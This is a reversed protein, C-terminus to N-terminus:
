KMWQIGIDMMLDAAKQYLDWEELSAFKGMLEQLKLRVALYEEFTVAKETDIQHEKLMQKLLSLPAHM